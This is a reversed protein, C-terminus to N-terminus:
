VAYWGFCSKSHAWVGHGAWVHPQCNFSCRGDYIQHHNENQILHVGDDSAPESDKTLPRWRKQWVDALNRSTLSNKRKEESTGLVSLLKSSLSMKLVKMRLNTFANVGIMYMAKKLPLHPLFILELIQSEYLVHARTLTNRQAASEATTWATIEIHKLGITHLLYSLSTVSLITKHHYYHHHWQQKKHSWHAWPPQRISSQMWSLMVMNPLCSMWFLKNSIPMGHTDEELQVEDM